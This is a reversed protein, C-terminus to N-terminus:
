DVADRKRRAHLMDPTVCVDRLHSSSQGFRQRRNASANRQRRSSSAAAQQASPERTGPLWKAM